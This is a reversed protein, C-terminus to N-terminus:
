KVDGLRGFSGLLGSGDTGRFMFQEPTTFNLIVAGCLPLPVDPDNSEM